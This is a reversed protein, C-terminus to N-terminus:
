GSKWIGVAWVRHGGSVAAVQDFLFLARGSRFCIVTLPGQKHSCLVTEGILDSVPITM